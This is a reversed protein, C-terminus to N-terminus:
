NFFPEGMLSKTRCENILESASRGDHIRNITRAFLPAVDQILIKEPVQGIIPLTNTTVLKTIPSAVLRQCAGNSAIFHSLFIIISKAGAKALAEIGPIATGGTLTEDDFILCVKGKVEGIVSLIDASESDDWRMKHIIVVLADGLLKAIRYTPKINGEDGTIVVFDKLGEQYIFEFFFPEAFIQDAPIDFFSLIQAAHLDMVLVRNAGALELLKAVLKATVSIRGEEKKDSRVYFMYPMVVTIRGASASRLADIIILLEILDRNCILSALDSFTGVVELMARVFIKEEGSLGDAVKFLMDMIATQRDVPLKDFFRNDIGGRGSTQVVFVDRNRVNGRITVKINGNSFDKFEIKTERIGLYKCIGAVMAPHSRGGCVVIDGYPAIM